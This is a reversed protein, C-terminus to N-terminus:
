DDEENHEIATGLVNFTEKISAVTQKPGHIKTFQKKGLLTLVVVIAAFIGADILYGAWAPLGVAILVQAITIVLLLLVLLSLFGASIFLAIGIALRKGTGSMESKALEITNHAISSIEALADRVLQIVSTEAM